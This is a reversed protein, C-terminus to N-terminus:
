TPPKCRSSHRHGSPRLWEVETFPTQEAWCRPVGHQTSAPLLQPSKGARGTSCCGFSGHARAVLGLMKQDCTLGLAGRVSFPFTKDGCTAEVTKPAAGGDPNLTVAVGAVEAAENPSSNVVDVSGSVEFENAPAKVFNVTFSVDGSAGSAVKVPAPPADAAASWADRAVLATKVGSVTPALSGPAAVSQLQQVQQAGCGAVAVSVNAAARAVSTAPAGAPTVTAVSSLSYAGCPAPAVFPGVDVGFVYDKSESTTVALSANKSDDTSPLAGADRALWAAATSNDPAVGTLDIAVTATAGVPDARRVASFDFQAPSAFFKGDKAEVRAGLFGADNGRSWSVNFTCTLAENANLVLGGPRSSDCTAPVSADGATVFVATVESTAPGPNRATIQGAVFHATDQPPQKTVRVTFNLTRKPAGISLSVTDNTDASQQVTWVYSSLAYTQFGGVTVALQSGVSQLVQNNTPPSAV